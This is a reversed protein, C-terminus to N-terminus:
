LRVPRSLASTSTVPGSENPYMCVQVNGGSITCTSCCPPSAEFSFDSVYVQTTYGPVTFEAETTATMTIYEEYTTTVYSSISGDKDVPSVTEEPESYTGAPQTEYVISGPVYGGTSVPATLFWTNLSSQWIAGCASNYNPDYYDTHGYPNQFAFDEYSYAPHGSRSCARGGDNGTCAVLDTSDVSETRSPVMTTVSLTGVFSPLLATSTPMITSNPFNTAAHAMVAFAFFFMDRCCNMMISLNHM